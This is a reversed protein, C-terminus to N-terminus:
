ALTFKIRQCGRGKKTGITTAAEPRTGAVPKPEGTSPAPSPYLLVWKMFAQTKQTLGSAVPGQGMPQM